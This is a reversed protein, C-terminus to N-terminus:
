RKRLGGRPAYEVCVDATELAARMTESMPLDGDTILCSIADLPCVRYFSEKDLKESEAYAIVQPACETLATSFVGDEEEWVSIGSESIATAGVFVKDVRYKRLAEVAPGGTVNASKPHLEGGIFYVKGTFDGRSLKRLLIEAVPLAATVVRVNAVDSIAEAIAEAGTGSDLAIMDNSEIHKAAAIGIRRKQEANKTRRREYPLERYRQATTLVAGGHVKKIPHEKAVAALDRRITEDSVHLLRCLETGSVQGDRYILELIKQRREEALM